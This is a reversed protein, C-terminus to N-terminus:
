NTERRLLLSKGIAKKLHKKLLKLREAKQEIRSTLDPGVGMYNKHVDHSSSTFYNVAGFHGEINGNEGGKFENINHTTGHYLEM